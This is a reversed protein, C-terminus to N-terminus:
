KKIFKVINTNSQLLYAGNALDGVTIVQLENEVTVMKVLVGDLSYIRVVDGIAVGQVYLADMTPNPYAIMMIDSVNEIATETEVFAIKRVDNVKSEAIVIGSFDVFKVFNDEFKITSIEKLELEQQESSLYEIVISNKEAWIVNLCFFMFLLGIFKRM